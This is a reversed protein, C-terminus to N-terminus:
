AISRMSVASLCARCLAAFAARSLSPAAMARRWLASLIMAIPLAVTTLAPPEGNLDHRVGLIARQLGHPIM